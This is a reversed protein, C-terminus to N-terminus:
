EVEYATYILGQLFANQVHTWSERDLVMLAWGEVTNKWRPARGLPALKRINEAIEERTADTRFQRDNASPCYLETMMGLALSRRVIANSKPMENAGNM